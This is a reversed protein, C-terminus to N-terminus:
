TIIQGSGDSIMDLTNLERFLVTNLESFLVIVLFKCLLLHSELWNDNIYYDMPWCGLFLNKQVM